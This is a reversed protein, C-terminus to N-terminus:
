AARNLAPARARAQRACRMSCFWRGPSRPTPSPALCHECCIRAADAARRRRVVMPTRAVPLVPPAGAHVTDAAEGAAHARARPDCRNSCYRGTAARSLFAGDCSRCTRAFWTSVDPVQVAKFDGARQRMVQMERLVGKWTDPPTAWAPASLPYGDHTLYVDSLALARRDNAMMM